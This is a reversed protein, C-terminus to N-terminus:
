LLEAAGLKILSIEGPASVVVDRLAIIRSTYLSKVRYADAHDVGDCKWDTNREGSSVVPHLFRYKTSILFHEAIYASVEDSWAAMKASWQDFDDYAEYLARGQDHLKSLQDCIEEQHKNDEVLDRLKGMQDQNEQDMQVPAWILDWLYMLATSGLVSIVLLIVTRGQDTPEGLWPLFYIAGFILVTQIIFMM